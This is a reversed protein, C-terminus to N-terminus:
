STTEVLPGRAAGTIRPPPAQVRSIRREGCEACVPADTVDREFRATHGCRFTVTM